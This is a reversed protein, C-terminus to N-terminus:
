KALKPLVGVPIPCVYSSGALSDNLEAQAETVLAPHELIDVIARAM